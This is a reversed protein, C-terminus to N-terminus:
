SLPTQVTQEFCKKTKLAEPTTQWEFYLTSFGETYILQNSLSDFVQIRNQGLNLDTSLRARRGGWLPEESLQDLWATTTKNDGCFQFDIRCAKDNFFRDYDQASTSNLFIFFLFISIFFKRM